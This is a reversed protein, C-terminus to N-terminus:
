SAEVFSRKTLAKRRKRFSKVADLLAILANFAKSVATVGNTVTTLISIFTTVAGATLDIKGDVILSQAIAPIDVGYKFPLVAQSLNFLGTEEVDCDAVPASKASGPITLDATVTARTIQGDTVNDLDALYAAAWTNLDALTVTDAFQIYQQHSATVGNSDLIQSSVYANVTAM